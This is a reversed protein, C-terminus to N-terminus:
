HGTFEPRRKGVFAAAGERHDATAGLRRQGADELALAAEVDLGAANVAAKTEAYALPPGAAFSELLEAARADFGDAPVSEAVLGWQAATAGPLAEGTLALRMARARGVAATVLATAGGDPMLGIRTFALVFPAEDAVLAYDCALAMPVGIGAAVGHVLAVVPTTTGLLTRVLEAGAELVGMQAGEATLPAGSCFGRGAGTLAVVRVAPDADLERLAAVVAACMEPDVANLREPADLTIRGIAGDAEVRVRASSM